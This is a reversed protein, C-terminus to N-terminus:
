HKRGQCQVLGLDRGEEGWTYTKQLAEAQEGEPSSVQEVVQPELVVLSDPAPPPSTNQMREHIQDKSRPWWPGPCWGLIHSRGHAPCRRDKLGWLSAASGCSM